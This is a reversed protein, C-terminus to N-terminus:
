VLKQVSQGLLISAVWNYPIPWLFGNNCIYWSGKIIWFDQCYSPLNITTTWLGHLTNNIIPELTSMTKLTVELEKLLSICHLDTSSNTCMLIHEFTEEATCSPCQASRKYYLFNQRNPKALNHILKATCVQQFTTLRHFAREHTDWDVM